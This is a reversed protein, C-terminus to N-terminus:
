RYSPSPPVAPLPSSEGVGQAAAFASPPVGAERLATVHVPAPQHLSLPTPPSKEAAAQFGGTGGLKPSNLADIDAATAADMLTGAAQQRAIAAELKEAAEARKETTEEWEAAAGPMHMSAASGLANPALVTPM